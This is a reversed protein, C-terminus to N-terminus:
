RCGSMRFSRRGNSQSLECVATQGSPERCNDLNIAARLAKELRPPLGNLLAKRIKEELLKM